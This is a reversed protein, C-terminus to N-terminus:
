TLNPVSTIVAIAREEYGIQTTWNGIQVAILPRVSTISWHNTVTPTVSTV